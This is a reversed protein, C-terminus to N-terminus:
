KEKGKKPIETKTSAIAIKDLVLSVIVDVDVPKPTVPKATAVPSRLAVLAAAIEERCIRRVLMQDEQFM